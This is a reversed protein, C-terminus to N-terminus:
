PRSHGCAALGHERCHRAVLNSDISAEGLVGGEISSIFGVDNVIILDSKGQALLYAAGLGGPSTTPVDITSGEPLYELLINAIASSYTYISTGVDM